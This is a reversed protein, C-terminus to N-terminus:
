KKFELIAKKKKPKEEVPKKGSVISELVPLTHKIQNLRSMYREERIKYTDESMKRDKFCETQARKLLRRLTEMEIKMFQIKNKTLKVRIAKVTPRYLLFLIVFVLIIKWWNKEIFNKSLNVLGKVRREESRADDLAVEAEGIFNIAESYRENDFADEVKLIAGDVAGVDISEVLANRSEKMDSIYDEIDYAKDKTFKIQETLRLVNVYDLREIEFLPTEQAIVSLGDLYEMDRSSDVEGILEFFLTYNHGILSRKAMLLIDNVYATSLRNLEMSEIVGEADILASIAMGVDVEEPETFTFNKSLSGYRQYTEVDSGIELPKSSLSKGLFILSVVLVLIAVAFVIYAGSKNMKGRWMSIM